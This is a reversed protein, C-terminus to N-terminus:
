FGLHNMLQVTKKTLEPYKLPKQWHDLHVYYPSTPMEIESDSKSSFTIIKPKHLYGNDRNAPFKDLTRNVASLVQGASVHYDLMWDLIIIDSKGAAIKRKAEHIELAIETNCGLQRFISEVVVAWEVDDDVILVNPISRDHQPQVEYIAGLDFIFEGLM